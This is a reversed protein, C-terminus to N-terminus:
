RALKLVAMPANQTLPTARWVLTKVAGAEKPGDENNHMVLTANTTLTFTGDLAKNTDGGGMPGMGGMGPMGASQSQTAAFAPAMLRVVGGKRLEVMVFPLIMQADSNFPYVFNHTLTGSTAYDILFKGNGVYQASRYGEEKSLAEAVAKLKTEREAADKRKKEQAAAAAEKDDTAPADATSMGMAEGPDSAIVEGKYTFAFSRDANITMTSTFKGPQFLCGVLLLPAALALALRTWKM